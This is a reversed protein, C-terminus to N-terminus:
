PLYKGPIGPNEANHNNLLSVNISVSNARNATFNDMVIHTHILTSVM